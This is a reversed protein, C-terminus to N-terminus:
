LIENWDKFGCFPYHGGPLIRIDKCRANWFNQQNEVPFVRDMRSIYIKDWQLEKQMSESQRHIMVLEECVEQLPRSLLKDRFCEWERADAFMRQLFKKRGEENFGRETLEYIRVPIGYRNDIPFETGNFAILKAPAIGTMSIVNAAAWVGLSWGIVYIEGYLSLDPLEALALCRYDSVVAVDYIGTLQLVAGSDMGWGNFFLIMRHNGTNKNLWEIRM